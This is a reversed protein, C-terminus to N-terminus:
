QHVGTEPQFGTSFVGVTPILSIVFPRFLSDTVTAFQGNFLTVKPAFMLNSREDGQAAQIFFFAEIDSLVAMGVQLGATPQFGGFDPVGLEFSGQTFPIDLNQSFTEPASLGVITGNQPYRDRNTLERTPDATFFGSGAQAQQAQQAQQAPISRALDTVSQRLAAM